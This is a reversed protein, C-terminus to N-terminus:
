IPNGILTRVGGGDSRGREMQAEERRGERWRIAGDRLICEGERQGGERLVKRGGDRGGESCGRMMKSSHLLLAASSFLPPEWM